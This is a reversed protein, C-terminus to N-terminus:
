DEESSRTSPIKGKSNVQTRVGNGLLKNPHYYLQLNLRHVCANWKMSEFSGSMWTKSWLSTYTQTSSPHICAVFVCGVIVMWLSPIHSGRHNSKRKFFPWIHSFRVWFPSCWLYLQSCPPLLLLLFLFTRTHTHTHRDTHTHTHTHTHIHTHTPSPTPPTHHACICAPAHAHIFILQEGSSTVWCLFTAYCKLIM